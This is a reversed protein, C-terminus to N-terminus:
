KISQPPVAALASLDNPGFLAFAAVGHDAVVHIYGSTIDRGAIEPFLEQETLLKSIRSRPPITLMRTSVVSGTKDLLSVTANVASYNPNLIALGTFWTANSAIQGFIFDTQLTQVLPLAAGYVNRAPDGFTVSGLLGNGLGSGDIQVYGQVQVAGATLFFDRDNIHVKGNPPITVNRISGIQTGDDRFFRLIVSTELNGTNVISLTTDWDSGGVVYQPCYLTMSRSSPFQGNLAQIFRGAKGMFALPVVGPSRPWFQLYHNDSYTLGPFLTSLDEILAGTAKITRQAKGQAAGTADILEIQVDVAEANPNAVHIRTFGDAQIDTLLIPSNDFLSSAVDAGDLLSLNLNFMLFFAAIRAATSDIKFWGEPKVAPLGSGWVEFDIVPLQGGAKLTRVAPNTVDNGSILRGDRDYATFTLTADSSDMNVIGIGTYDSDDPNSATANRTSLRPFYLTRGVSTYEYLGAFTAAYLIASNQPNLTLARLGSDYSFGASMSSWHIGGDMTWVVGIGGGAYVKEPNVPDVILRGPYQGYSDYVLTWTIGGDSSKLIGTNTGAFLVQPNRPNIALSVVRLASSGAIERTWSGGGNTSKWLGREGGGAHLDNPNQPNIALFNLSCYSTWYNCPTSLIPKGIEVWSSGGNISKLIGDEHLFYITNPDAVSFQIAVPFPSSGSPLWGYTSVHNWTKGGDRSTSLVQTGGAIVYDPDSPHVALARVWGVQQDPGELRTWSRGSDTSKYTGDIDDPDGYLAAYLISPNSPSAAFASVKGRLGTPTWINTGSFLLQQATLALSILLIARKM